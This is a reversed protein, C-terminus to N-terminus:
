PRLGRRRLEDDLRRADDDSIEVAEEPGDRRRRAWIRMLIPISGLGLAVAIGPVLWALLDFGSKPPTALVNKGFEAVLADIIRQKDWGRDIRERIFEKMDLAVPASSVELPTNCTPCKVERAVDSVTLASALAPAMALLVLALALARRTM